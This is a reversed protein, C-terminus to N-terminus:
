APLVNGVDPDQFLLAFCSSFYSPARETANALRSNAYYFRRTPLHPLLNHGKALWNTFALEGAPPPFDTARSTSVFKLSLDCLVEGAFTGLLADDEHAFLDALRFYPPVYTRVVSCGVYLLAGAEWHWFDQQNITSRLAVLYSNTSTLYRQPVGYWLVEVDADPVSMDPIGNVNTGDVGAPAGPCRFLMASAQSASVRVDDADANVFTFRKWEPYAYAVFSDGFPGVFPIEEMVMRSNPLIAYPRSTFRCAFEYGRYAAHRTVHPQVALGNIPVGGILFPGRDEYSEEPPPSVSLSECFLNPLAADAAPLERQVSGLGGVAGLPLAGTSNARTTGLMTRVRDLVDSPLVAAPVKGTATETDHYLVYTRTVEALDVSFTAQPERGKTREEFVLAM